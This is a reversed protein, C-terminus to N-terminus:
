TVGAVLSAVKVGRSWFSAPIQVRDEPKDTRMDYRFVSCHSFGLNTPNAATLSEQHAM